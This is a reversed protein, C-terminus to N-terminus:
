QPRLVAAKRRVLVRRWTTLEIRRSKMRRRTPSPRTGAKAPASRNETKGGCKSFTAQIEPRVSRREKRKAASEARHKRLKRFFLLRARSTSEASKKKPPSRALSFTKRSGPRNRMTRHRFPIFPFSRRGNENGNAKLATTQNKRLDKAKPGPAGAKEPRDMRSKKEVM